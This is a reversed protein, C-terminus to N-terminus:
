NLRKQGPRDQPHHSSRVDVALLYPEPEQPGGADVDPRDQARADQDERGDRGQCQQWRAVQSVRIMTPTAADDRGRHGHQPRPQGPPATGMASSSSFPGRAAGSVATAAATGVKPGILVKTAPAPRNPALRAESPTSGRASPRPM